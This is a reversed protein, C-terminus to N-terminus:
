LCMENAYHRHLKQSITNSTVRGIHQLNGGCELDGASVYAQVITVKGANGLRLNGLSKSASM